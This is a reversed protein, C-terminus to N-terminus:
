INVGTFVILDPNEAKIMRRLFQTTNLDSCFEFESPLVDRCRTVIGNGYHMDAVQLIKFTGNSNFRLPLDPKRKVKVETNGVMLNELILTQLLYLVASLFGIFLPLTLCKERSSGEM